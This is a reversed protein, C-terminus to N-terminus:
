LQQLLCSYFAPVYIVSVAFKRRAPVPAFCIRNGLLLLSEVITCCFVGRKKFGIYKPEAWDQATTSRKPAVYVGLAYLTLLVMKQRPQVKDVTRSLLARIRHTARSDM